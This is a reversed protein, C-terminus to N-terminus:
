ASKWKERWEKPMPQNYGVGKRSSGLFRIWEDRLCGCSKALGRVVNSLIAEHQRGCDCQFLWYRGNTASPGIATLRTGEIKQGKYKRVTLKERLEPCQGCTRGSILSKRKPEIIRGCRCQVKSGGGDPVELVLFHGVQDGVKHKRKGQKNRPIGMRKRLQRVRERTIGLQRGADGDNMVGLISGLVKPDYSAGKGLGFGIRSVKKIGLAKRRMMVVSSSIGLMQAIESDMKTGLMADQEPTWPYPPRGARKPQIGLKARRFAVTVPSVGLKEAVYVNTHERILADDEPTWKIAM